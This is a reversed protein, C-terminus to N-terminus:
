FDKLWVGRCLFLQTESLYLVCPSKGRNVCRSSYLPTHGKLFVHSLEGEWQEAVPLPCSEFWMGTITIRILKWSFFLHTCAYVSVSQLLKNKQLALPLRLLFRCHYPTSDSCGHTLYLGQHRGLIWGLCPTFHCLLWSPLCSPGWPLCSGKCVANMLIDRFAGRCEGWGLVAAKIHCRHVYFCVPGYVFVIARAVAIWCKHLPFSISGVDCRVCCLM